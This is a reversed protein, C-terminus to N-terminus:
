LILPLSGTRNTIIFESFCTRLRHRIVVCWAAALIWRRVPTIAAPVGVILVAAGVRYPLTTHDALEGWGAVLAFATVTEISWWWIGRIVPWALIIVAALVGSDSNPDDSCHQDDEDRAPRM